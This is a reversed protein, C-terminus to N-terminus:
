PGATTRVAMRVLEEQLDLAYLVPGGLDLPGLGVAEHLPEVAGQKVLVEAYLASLLPVIRDLLHLGVQLLVELVVVVLAGM